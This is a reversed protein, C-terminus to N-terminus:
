LENTKLNLKSNSDQTGSKSVGLVVGRVELTRNASSCTPAATVVGIAAVVGSIAEDEDM